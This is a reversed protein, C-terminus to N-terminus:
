TEMMAEIEAALSFDVELIGISLKLYGAFQNM